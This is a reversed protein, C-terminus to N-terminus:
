GHKCVEKREVQDYVHGWDNGNALAKKLDAKAEEITDCDSYFDDMGGAPYYTAGSFVLFRKM